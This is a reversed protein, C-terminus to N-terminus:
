GYVFQIAAIDDAGLQFNPNYGQYYPAMVAGPEGSHALGLTHGFEHTAV